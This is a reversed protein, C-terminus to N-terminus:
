AVTKVSVTEGKGSGDGVLSAKHQEDKTRFHKFNSPHNVAYKMLRLGNRIDPEVNLHMM